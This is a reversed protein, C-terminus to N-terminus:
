VDLSVILYILHSLGKHNLQSGGLSVVKIQLEWSSNFVKLFKTLVVLRVCQQSLSDYKIDRYSAFLTTIFFAVKACERQIRKETEEKAKTQNENFKVDQSWSEAKNKLTQTSYFHSCDFKHSRM